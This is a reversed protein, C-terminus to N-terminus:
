PPADLLVRTLESLTLTDDMMSSAEELRGVGKKFAETMIADLDIDLDYHERLLSALTSKSVQDGKEDGFALLLEKMHLIEQQYASQASITDAYLDLFERLQMKGDRNHDARLVMEDLEAKTPQQGLSRFLAELEHPEISGSGDLDMAFFAEVAQQRQAYSLRVGAHPKFERAQTERERKWALAM